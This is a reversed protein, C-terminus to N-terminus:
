RYPSKVPTTSGDVLRTDTLAIAIERLDLVTGLTHNGIWTAVSRRRSLVSIPHLKSIRPAGIAM